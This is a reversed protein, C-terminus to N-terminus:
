HRELEAMAQDVEWSEHVIGHLARVLLSPDDSQFINRGVSLGSGGAKISDYVMQVIDRRSNM